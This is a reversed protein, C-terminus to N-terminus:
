GYYARERIEDNDGEDEWRMKGKEDNGDRRVCRM